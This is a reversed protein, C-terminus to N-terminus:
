RVATSFFYRPPPRPVLSLDPLINPKNICVCVCLRMVCVCVCVCVCACLGGGFGTGGRIFVSGTPEAEYSRSGAKM